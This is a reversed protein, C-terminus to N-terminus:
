PRRQREEAARGREDQVMTRDILWPTNFSIMWLANQATLHLRQTLAAFDQVTAVPGTIALGVSEFKPETGLANVYPFLLYCAEGHSVVRTLSEDIDQPRFPKLNKM